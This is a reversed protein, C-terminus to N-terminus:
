SIASVVATGSSGLLTSTENKIREITVTCSHENHVWKAELHECQSDDIIGVSVLCDSVAKLLNDLDRKRKDPRVVELTLKYPELVQKGRAQIKAQMMAVKRWATYKPSRYMGGTSTTRWLRNVSPPFDLVFKIV